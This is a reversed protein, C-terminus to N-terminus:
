VNYSLLGIHNARALGQAVTDPTILSLNLDHQEVLTVLKEYTGQDQLAPHSETALLIIKKIGTEAIEAVKEVPNEEARLVIIQGREDHFLKHYLYQGLIRITSAIPVALLIGLLGGIQAGALVAFIVIIPNLHVVKGVLSPIVLGDEMQRLVFYGIVVVIAYTLHNWGFPVHPQFLSAGVAIAGATYPGIFPIIELLGTLIAILLPYDLRIVSLFIFTATSMVFVLLVQSRIYDGLSQNIRHLLARIEHQYPTPILRIFYDIEGDGRLLLYFTTFLFVTLSVLRGAIGTIFPLANKPVSVALENSRALVQSEVTTLSVNIGLARLIPQTQAYRSFETFADPLQKILAATQDRIIPALTMFAWTVGGFLCLYLFIIWVARPIRTRKNLFTIPGHFLYTAVVAWIFPALLNATKYLLILIVALGAVITIEKARRSFRIERM